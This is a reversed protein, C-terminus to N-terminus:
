GVIELWKHYFVSYSFFFTYTGTVYVKKCIVPDSQQVASVSYILQVEFKKKKFTSIGM